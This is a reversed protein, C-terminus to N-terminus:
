VFDQVPHDHTSVLSGQPPDKFSAEFTRFGKLWYQENETKDTRQVAFGLLGKRAEDTADFGMLVVYTGAVFYASVGQNRGSYRM